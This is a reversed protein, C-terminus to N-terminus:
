EHIIKGGSLTIIKKAEIGEIDSDDHTVMLVACGESLVKRLASFLIKHSESDLGACPEDLLLLEPEGCLARALFVRRLQGGSLTSIERNALEKIGLEQMSRLARKKDGYTYFLKGPRQTGTMVIEHVRAPFNRDAEEIQPVYSMKESREIKGSYLPLLGAIGRTLTSKGSGNAGTIFIMEGSEASLSVDNIAAVDGYKIVANTIKVRETM